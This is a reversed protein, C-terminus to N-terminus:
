DYTGTPEQHAAGIKEILGRPLSANAAGAANYFRETMSMAATTDTTGTFALFPVVPPGDLHTYAHLMAAAAIGHSAANAATSAKLTSQGGMSHGSIAVGHTFDVLSFQPHGAKSADTAAARAHTIINLQQKYYQDLCDGFLCARPAAVVFGWAALSHLISTYVIPQIFLGGGAGHAFAILRLPQTANTPWYVDIADELLPGGPVAITTHSTSFPGALPPAQPQCLSLTTILAATFMASQPCIVLQSQLVVNLIFFYFQRVDGPLLSSKAVTGGVM